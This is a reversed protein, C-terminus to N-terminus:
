GYATLWTLSGKSNEVKGTKEGTGALKKGNKRPYLGKLLVLGVAYNDEAM